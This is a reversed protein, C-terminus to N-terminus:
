SGFVAVASFLIQRSNPSWVPDLDDPGDTAAGSGTGPCETVWDGNSQKRPWSRPSASSGDPSWSTLPMRRRTQHHIDISSGRPRHSQGAGTEPRTRSEDGAHRRGAPFLMDVAGLHMVPEMPQGVGPALTLEYRGVPRSFAIRGRPSPSVFGLAM